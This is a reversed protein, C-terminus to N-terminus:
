KGNNPMREVVTNFLQIVDAMMMNTVPITLPPPGLTFDGTNTNYHACRKQILLPRMLYGQYGRGAYFAGAALAGLLFYVLCRKAIQRIM